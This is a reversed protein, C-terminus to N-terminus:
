EDQYKKFLESLKINNQNALDIALAAVNRPQSAGIEESLYETLSDYKRPLEMRDDVPLEKEEKRHEGDWAMLYHGHINYRREVFALVSGNAQRFWAAEFKKDWEKDSIACLRAFERQNMEWVQAFEVKEGKAQYTRIANIGCSEMVIELHNGLVEILKSADEITDYDVQYWEVDFADTGDKANDNAKEAAVIIFWEDVVKVPYGYVFDHNDTRKAKYLFEAM